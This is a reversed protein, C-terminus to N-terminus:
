RAFIHLFLQDGKRLYDFKQLMNFVLPSKLGLGGQTRWQSEGGGSRCVRQM